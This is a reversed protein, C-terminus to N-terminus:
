YRKLLKKEQKIARMKSRNSPVAFKMQYETNEEGIIFETKDRKSYIWLDKGNESSPKIAGMFSHRLYSSHWHAISDPLSYWLFSRWSPLWLSHHFPMSWSPTSFPPSCQSSPNARPSSFILSQNVLKRARAKLIVASVNAKGTAELEMNRPHITYTKIIANMYKSCNDIWQYGEWWWYSALIM